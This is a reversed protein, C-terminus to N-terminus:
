RVPRVYTEISENPSIAIPTGLEAWAGTHLLRRKLERVKTNIFFGAQTQELFSLTPDTPLLLYNATQMAISTLRNMRGKDDEGPLNRDWVGREAATFVDSQPFFYRSGEPLHIAGDDGPMGGYEYILVNTLACSHFTGLVPAIYRIETQRRDAAASAIRRILAKMGDAHTVAAGTFLQPREAQFANLLSSGALLLCIVWRTNGRAALMGEGAWPFCSFLLFGFVAPMSVFPNLGAGALTLFFPMALALWLIRYDIRRIWNKAKGARLNLALVVLLSAATAIGLHAGALLIHLVSQSLPLHRNADGQSIFYYFYLFRFNYVQFLMGAAAPVAMLLANRLLAKRGPTSARWFRVAMLPGLMVALYAPATGRALCALMAAAGSLLWPLVSETEYTALYWVATLSLFIYLSLDMRFDRLGGNWDYIRAFSVFPLTLCIGLFADVNRYRTFYWYLSLALALLWVWQLWVGIFRSPAMFRALVAAELWPLAVNGQLAARMAAAIGASHEVQWISALQNTYSCSDFFPIHQRYFDANLKVAYCGELVLVFAVIM